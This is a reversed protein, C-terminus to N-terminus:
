EQCDKTAQLERDNKKKTSKILPVVNIPPVVNHVLWYGPARSELPM